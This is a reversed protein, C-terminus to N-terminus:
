KAFKNQFFKVYFKDIYKIKSYSAQLRPNTIIKKLSNPSFSYQIALSSLTQPFYFM